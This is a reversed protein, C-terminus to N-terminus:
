PLRRVTVYYAGAIEKGDAAAFWTQLKARGAALKVAFTVGKDDVAVPRTANFEAVQLRATAVPLAVGAPFEGDAHKVAPLGARITADAEVPWRRLTIAYNGATAVEVNWAGNRRLGSRVQAGQDLFSDEWDAPSLLLPNEADSGVVIAEHENVKPAVEVWWREYHQRMRAAVDPFKEIVNAKQEPDAALDYLEKNQV